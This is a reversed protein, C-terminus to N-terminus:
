CLWEKFYDESRRGLGTDAVLRRLTRTPSDMASSGGSRRTATVAWGEERRLWLTLHESSAEACDQGDM